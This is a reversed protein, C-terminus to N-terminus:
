VLTSKMKESFALLKPVKELYEVPHLDRNGHNPKCNYIKEVHPVAELGYKAGMVAGVIAANTDTDGGLSLTYEIAHEYSFNNFLCFLVLSFANTDWGINKTVDPHDITCELMKSLKFDDLTNSLDVLKLYITDNDHEKLISLIIICYAYVLNVVCKKVHTFKVDMEIFDYLEKDTFEFIYAFIAYPACRMLAGNSESNVNMVNVNEVMEYKTKAGYFANKTTYGIDFPESDMWMKFNQFILDDMEVGQESELMFYTYLARFVQLTLEGDDTIQGPALHLVGGGLLEMAKKIEHHSPVGRFELRGGSADGFAHGYLVGLIKSEM